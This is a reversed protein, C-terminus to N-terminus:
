INSSPSNQCSCKIGFEANEINNLSDLSSVGYTGGGCALQLVNALSHQGGDKLLEEPVKSGLKKLQKDIEKIHEPEVMSKEDYIVMTNGNM